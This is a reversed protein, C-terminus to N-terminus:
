RIINITEDKQLFRAVVRNCLSKFVGSSGFVLQFADMIVLVANVVRYYLAM